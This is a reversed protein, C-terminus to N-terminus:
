KQEDKAKEAPQDAQQTTEASPGPEPYIDALKGDVFLLRRKVIFGVTSTYIWEERPKGELSPSLVNVTTPSGLAYRVQQTTMGMVVDGQRINQQVDPPYDKIEDPSYRVASACGSICFGLVLLGVLFFHRKM